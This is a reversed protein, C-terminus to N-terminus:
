GWSTVEMDRWYDSKRRGRATSGGEIIGERERVVLFGECPFVVIMM